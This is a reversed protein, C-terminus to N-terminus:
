QKCTRKLEEATLAFYLNQLQHVYMYEVSEDHEWENNNQEGYHVISFKRKKWTPFFDEGDPYTKEFGFELLWEETLPIPKFYHPNVRLMEWDCSKFVQEQNDRLNSIDLYNGIRLERAEM